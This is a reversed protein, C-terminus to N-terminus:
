EPDRCKREQHGEHAPYGQAAQVARAHSVPEPLDLAVVGPRVEAVLTEGHFAHLAGDVERVQLDVDLPPPSRLNVEAVGGLLEGLVGSAYGGNASGPPGNFRSPIRVTTSSAGGTSASDNGTSDM